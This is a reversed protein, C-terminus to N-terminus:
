DSHQTEFRDKFAKESSEIADFKHLEMQYRMNGWLWPFDQQTADWTLTELLSNRSKVDREEYLHYLDRNELAGKLQLATRKKRMEEYLRLVSPLGPPNSSRQRLGLLTGLAAGDEVAMAAGQAQYPPTPHCADGLGVVSGKSCITLERDM